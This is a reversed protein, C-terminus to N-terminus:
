LSCSDNKHNLSRNKIKKRMAHLALRYFYRGEGRFQELLNKVGLISIVRRLNYVTFIIAFEGYYISRREVIVIM